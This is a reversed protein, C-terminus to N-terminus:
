RLQESASAQDNACIKPASSESSDGLLMGKCRLCQVFFVKLGSDDNERCSCLM